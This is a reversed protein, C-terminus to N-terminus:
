KRFIYNEVIVYDMDTTQLAEIADSIRTLIPKGKINFSTNLLVGKGYQEKLAGLLAYLFEHQNRTVTQVRATGDQHTISPLDVGEKVKPCFSM